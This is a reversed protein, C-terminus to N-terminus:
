RKEITYLLAVGGGGTLSPVQSTLRTGAAFDNKVVSGLLEAGIQLVLRDGWMALEGGVRTGFAGYILAQSAFGAVNAFSQIGGVEAVGCHAFWARHACVVIGGTIRGLEVQYYPFPLAAPADWRGELTASLWDYRVGGSLALAPTVHPVTAYDMWVGGGLRFLIPKRPAPPPPEPAPPPSPPEPVETAPPPAPPLVPPPCVPCPEPEAPRDIRIAIALGAAEVLTRCSERSAIADSWLIQGAADRMQMTVVYQAARREISVDLRRAASADFPDYGMEKLVASRLAEAEPCAAAGGGRAYTLLIPPVRSPAAQATPIRALVVAVFTFLISPRM